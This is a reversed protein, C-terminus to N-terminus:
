VQSLVNPMVCIGEYIDRLKDRVAELSCRADGLLMNTNDNYFVPNELAAYGTGMSRKLVVVNDSKWVRIVPMGAIPSNPDDEASSNVTDNAGVVLSIDVDAWDEPENMEEMEFVRDYPIGAEALLVNLQGLMRGAVPHICVKVDINNAALLQMMKRFAYQGKSVAVGYGPVIVVKRLLLWHVLLMMLVVNQASVLLLVSVPLSVAQRRPNRPLRCCKWITRNMAKCMIASLIAGSSGILAGVITLLNNDLVSGEVSRWGSASNLLTIVVPMDAGGVQSTVLYGLVLSVATAAGLYTLASSMVSIQEIFKYFMAGTVAVLGFNFLNQGGFKLPKGSLIGQLKGFAVISGSVTVAGIISAIFTSVSHVASMTHDGSVLLSGFATFCAALGVLSHFAAVLQPLGTVEISNAISAGIAAGALMVGAVQKYVQNTFSTIGLTAVLGGAVGVAGLANGFEATEQSALSGIAFICCMGSILYAMQNLNSLGNYMGYVYLGLFLAAPLFYLFKYKESSDEEAGKIKFMGLMRSTMIFGGSVNVMSVLVAIAALYQATTQPLINGGMLIIGGVATMGSIANTVSMLPSHLAPTVGYVVQSGALCALALTSFMDTLAKGGFAGIALLASVSIGALVADSLKDLFINPVPEPVVEAVPAPTAPTESPPPPPPVEKKPPPWMMEGNEVVMAGRVAEDEHDIYFQGKEGMSLLYKTVNNAFLTSSQAPMSPLDTIGIHTVGSYEYIEGPKTTEINGGNEAALDVVVSGPKMSEIMDKLILKPAPRGPILATTIIIDVDRAQQRFLEMEADIFEQSMQKAYGGTGEGEEEIKVELFEAGVSQIQEKVSSRVDFARVIAGMNKAQQIAALGAVGAGIVLVKAPPIKGAATFQGAFFRGFANSAEVVSRYGAVNAMSSLVDFTQARSLTRPMCDLAFATINKAQLQKVLEINEGPQIFSIVTAGEKFKNVEEFPPRVKLVIDATSLVTDGDLIDAGADRYMDDSFSAHFGAESEIIVKFGEKVLMKVSDPTAAVRKEGEKTEKPIGVTVATAPVGKKEEEVEQVVSPKDAIVANPILRVRAGFKGRRIQCKQQQKLLSVGRHKAQSLKQFFYQPRSILQSSCLM